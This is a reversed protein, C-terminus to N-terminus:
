GDRRRLEIRREVHQLRRKRPLWSVARFSFAQVGDHAPSPRYVTM